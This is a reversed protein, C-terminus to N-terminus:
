LAVGVDRERARRVVEHAIAVDWPAIGNSKFVVIDTEAQRGPLEGAVIQHLEHVELWDLQGAAVPEILDGSELKADEISDCCVLTARAIVQVDLERAGPDNAGIACVLAGERLWDGRLVPDKSTTATVVVDCAGADAPTEAVEAGHQEAFAAAREPTRSSVVVRQIRPVAARIAALQSEAQWGAGILGLSTAGSRALHKAAVGSAAGTRTQGLRDAAILATLSGDALDFLCVVFALQGEVVTYSKLGAVGLGQDAAAMVAFTGGEVAFRRRPMLEIQGAAMRRFCDEIVPVADGPSVLSAVDDESLWLPV